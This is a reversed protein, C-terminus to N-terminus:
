ARMNCHIEGFSCHQHLEIDQRLLESRNGTKSRKFHDTMLVNEPLIKLNKYVSKLCHAAEM